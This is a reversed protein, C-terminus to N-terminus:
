CGTEEFEPVYRVKGKVGNLGGAKLELAMFADGDGYDSTLHFSRAPVFGFRPYYEPHGVLIVADVGRQRCAWLGARVLRSGIGTRQFEPLVAVPGIGLVHWADYVPELTIPSFLIHGRVQEEDVAVMSLSAHGRRRILDVANAENPQGFARENVQRIAPLDTHVEPRIILNDGLSNLLERLPLDALSALHLDAGKPSLQTTLPNPV